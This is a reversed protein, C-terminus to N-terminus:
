HGYRKGGQLLTKKLSEYKSKMSNDLVDGEIEIVLGSLLSPDAKVRLDIRSKYRQSLAESLLTKEEENLDVASKVTAIKINEDKYYIEEFSRFIQPFIKFRHNRVLLKLLGLVEQNNHNFSKELVQIKEQREVDRAKFYSLVDQDEFVELANKLDQYVKASSKNDSSVQFLALGYRHALESM